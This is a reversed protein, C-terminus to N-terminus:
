PWWLLRDAAAEQGELSDCYRLGDGGGPRVMAGGQPSDSLDYRRYARYPMMTLSGTLLVWLFPGSRRRVRYRGGSPTGLVVSYARALEHGVQLSHHSPHDTHRKWPGQPVGILERVM